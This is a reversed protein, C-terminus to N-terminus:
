DSVARRCFRAVEEVVQQLLANAAAVGGAPDDSAAAQELRLTQSGLLRRQSVDVLQVRLALRVRSPRVTFDQELQLLETMLRYDPRMGSGQALVLTGGASLGDVLAQGLLRAPSDIWRQRAYYRLEHASLRYAMAPSGYGPAAGPAMVQLTRGSPAAPSVSAGTVLALTHTVDAPPPSIPLSCGALLLWVFAGFPKM